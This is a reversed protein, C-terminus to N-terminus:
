HSMELPLSIKRGKFQVGVGKKKGQLPHAAGSPTCFRESLLM